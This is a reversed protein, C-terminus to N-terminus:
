VFSFSRLMSVSVSVKVESGEEGLGGSIEVESSRRLSRPCLCAMVLEDQSGEGGRLGGSARM